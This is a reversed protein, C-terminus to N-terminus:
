ILTGQPTLRMAGAMSDGIEERILWNRGPQLGIRENRPDEVGEKYWYGDLPRTIDDSRWISFFAIAIAIGILGIKERAPFSLYRKQHYAFYCGLWTWIISLVILLAQQKEIGSERVIAINIWQIALSLWIANITQSLRSTATSFRLAFGWGPATFLVPLSFCGHLWWSADSQQLLFVLLPALLFFIM